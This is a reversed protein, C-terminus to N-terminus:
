AQPSPPSQAFWPAYHTASLKDIPDEYAGTIQPNVTPWPENRRYCETIPRENASKPIFEDSPCSYAAAAPSNRQEQVGCIQIFNEAPCPLLLIPPFLTEAILRDAGM